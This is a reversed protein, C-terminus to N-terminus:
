GPTLRNGSDDTLVNSSDDLLHSAANGSWNDVLGAGRSLGNVAVAISTEQAISSGHNLTDAAM